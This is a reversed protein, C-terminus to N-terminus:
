IEMWIDTLIRTLKSVNHSFQHCVLSVILPPQRTHNGLKIRADEFSQIACEYNSSEM